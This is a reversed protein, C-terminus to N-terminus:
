PSSPKNVRILMGDLVPNALLAQHVRDSLAVRDDDNTCIIIGNHQPFQRHLRNYDFRDLTLVARQQSIAFALVEHDPIGQNARGAELATLVDHGFRHLTVVVSYPYNEDSHLRAM